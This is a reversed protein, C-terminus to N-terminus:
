NIWTTKVIAERKIESLTLMERHSQEMQQLVAILRDLAAM